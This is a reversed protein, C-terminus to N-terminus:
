DRGRRDGDCFTKLLPLLMRFDVPKQLIAAPTDSGFPRTETGSLVITPIHAFRPDGQQQQRFMWGNMVPMTLDLVIVSAHGGSRLYDLAEQGNAAPIGDFGEYALAQVMGERIIRHDEVILVSRKVSCHWHLWRSRRANVLGVFKGSSFRYSSIASDCAHAPCIVSM